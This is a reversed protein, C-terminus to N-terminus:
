GVGDWPYGLITSFSRKKKKKVNYVCMQPSVKDAQLLDKNTGSETLTAFFIFHVTAPSICVEHLLSANLTPKLLVHSANQSTASATTSRIGM